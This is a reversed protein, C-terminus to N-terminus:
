RGSTHKILQGKDHFQMLTVRVVREPRWRCRAPAEPGAKVPGIMNLWPGCSRVRKPAIKPCLDPKAHAVTGVPVQLTPGAGM